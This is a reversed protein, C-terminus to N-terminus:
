PKRARGPKRAPARDDPGLNYAKRVGRSEAEQASSFVRLNTASIEEIWGSGAPHYINSDIKGFVPKKSTEGVAASLFKVISAALRADQDLLEVGQGEGDGTLCKAGSALRALGRAAASDKGSVLLIARGRLKPLDSRTDIGMADPAPSLCVIADVSRDRTAYRLAASGGLDAGVLAFRARDVGEQHALWDYAARLDRHIDAVVLPDRDRMGNRTSETASEGHGRLDLALVAFGGDRLPQVLPQWCERTMGHGHLLIVLPAPGRHNPPAYYDASLLLGDSAQFAVPRPADVQASAFPTAAALISLLVARASRLPRKTQSNPIM